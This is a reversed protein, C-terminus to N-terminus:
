ARLLALGILTDHPAVGEELKALRTALHLLQGLLPPRHEGGRRGGIAAGALTLGIQGPPLARPRRRPRRQCLVHLKPAAEAACDVRPAIPRLATSENAQHVHASLNRQQELRGRGDM